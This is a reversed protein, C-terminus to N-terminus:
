LLLQSAGRVEVKKYHSVNRQVVYFFNGQSLPFVYIKRQLRALSPQLGFGAATYLLTHYVTFSQRLAGNILRDNFFPM